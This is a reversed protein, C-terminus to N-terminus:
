LTSVDVTYASRIGYPVYLADGVLVPPASLDPFDITGSDDRGGLTAEVAGTTLDLVALRGSISSLYLRTASATPPGAQEVGSDSEWLQRGSRPDVARVGGSALTFYLRGSLVTPTSGEPQTNTLRVTTLVHSSANILTLTRHAGTTGLM